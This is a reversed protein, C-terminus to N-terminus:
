PGAPRPATLREVLLRAFREWDLDYQVAMKRAGEAGPWPEDGAVSVGYNIGPADDVDVYMERTEVLTPDIVSAMAVEDFVNVRAGPDKDFVAGLIHRL